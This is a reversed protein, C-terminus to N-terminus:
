VGLEEQTPLRYHDWGSIRYKENWSQRGGDWVTIKGEENWGSFYMKCEGSGEAHVIVPDDVKLEPRPKEYAHAPIEFPQWFLSPGKAKIHRYGKHTYSGFNGSDFIVGIPFDGPRKVEEISGWGNVMNWVRDGVQADRFIERKEEM